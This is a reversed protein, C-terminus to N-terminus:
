FFLTISVAPGQSGHSGRAGAPGIPGPLGNRGDKGPPGSPGPPGQFSVFLKIVTSFVLFFSEYVPTYFNIAYFLPLIIQM